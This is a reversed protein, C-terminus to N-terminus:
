ADAKRWNELFKLCLRVLSPRFRFPNAIIFEAEAFHVHTPRCQTRCTM